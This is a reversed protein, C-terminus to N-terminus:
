AEHPFNYWLDAGSHEYAERTKAHRSGGAAGGRPCAACIQYLIWLHCFFCALREFPRDLRDHEVVVLVAIGDEVDLQRGAEREPLEVLYSDDALRLRHPFALLDGRSARPHGVLDVSALELRLRDRADRRLREDADLAVERGPEYLADALDERLADDVGEAFVREVDEGVLGRPEALHRLEALRLDLLYARAPM